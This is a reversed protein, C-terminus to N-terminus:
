AEITIGYFDADYYDRLMAVIFAKDNHSATAAARRIGKDIRELATDFDRFKHCTDYVSDEYANFANQLEDILADCISEDTDTQNDYDYFHHRYARALTDRLTAYSTTM